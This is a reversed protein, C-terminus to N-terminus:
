RSRAEKRCRMGPMLAYILSFKSLRVRAIRAALFEKQEVSDKPFRDLVLKTWAGHCSPKGANARPKKPEKAAKAGKAPKTAAPASVPPNMAFAAFVADRDAQSMDQISKVIFQIASM